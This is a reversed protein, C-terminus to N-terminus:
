HTALLLYRSNLTQVIRGSAIEAPPTLVISTHIRRGDPFRAKRDRLVRGILVAWPGTASPWSVLTWDYLEADYDDGPDPKKRPM